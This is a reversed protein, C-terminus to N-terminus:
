FGMGYMCLGNQYGRCNGCSQPKSQDEPIYDNIYENGWLCTTRGADVPRIDGGSIKELDNENLEQQRGNMTKLKENPEENMKM